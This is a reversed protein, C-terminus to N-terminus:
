TKMKNKLKSIFHHHISILGKNTLYQKANDYGQIFKTQLITHSSNSSSDRSNATYDSPNENWRDDILEPYYQHLRQLSQNRSSRSSNGADNSGTTNTLIMYRLSHLTDTTLHITVNPNLVLKPIIGSTTTTKVNRSSRKDDSNSNSINQYEIAPSISDKNYSFDAAIPSVIVTNSDIRPFANVLGGDWYFERQNQQQQKYWRHNYIQSSSPSPSSSSSDTSASLQVPEGTTGKKVCGAQIMEHIQQSARAVAHHQM